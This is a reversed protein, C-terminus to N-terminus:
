ARKRGGPGKAPKGSEKESAKPPEDAKKRRRKAAPKAEPEADAPEDAPSPTEEAAPVNEAEEAIEPQAAPADDASEAPEGIPPEQVAQTSDDLPADAAPTEDQPVPDDAPPDAPENEAAAKEAPKEPEALVPNNAAEISSQAAKKEKEFSVGQVHVDVRVVHLGTLSELAKRVNEQVQACVEQIPTGYEVIIYLDVAAEQSGVEVKVGRTINRNRSLIEGFGGSVCMGAVGDIENTAVGAITAIVENAYTITGGNQLDVDVKVPLPEKKQPKQPM